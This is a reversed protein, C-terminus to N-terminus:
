YTGNKYVGIGNITFNSSLIIKDFTEKNCKTCKTIKDETIRQKIEEQHNCEKNFCKYTYTIM